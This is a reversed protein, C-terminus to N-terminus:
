TIQWFVIHREQLGVPIPYKTLELWKNFLKHRYCQEYLYGLDRRIGVRNLDYRQKYPLWGSAEDSVNGTCSLLPYRYMHRLPVKEPSAEFDFDGNEAIKITMNYEQVSDYKIGDSVILKYGERESESWIDVISKCFNKVKFIDMTYFPMGKTRTAHDTRISCQELDIVIKSFEFVNNPVYFRHINLGTDRIWEMSAIKDYM